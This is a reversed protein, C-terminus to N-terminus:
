KVMILVNVKTNNCSVVIKCKGKKKAKIVGKANVTAVKEKSTKYTIKAGTSSKAKLRLKKGKKITIRKTKTGAANLSVTKNGFTIKPNDLVEV